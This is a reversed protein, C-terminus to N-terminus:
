SVTLDSSTPNRSISIPANHIFDHAKWQRATIWDPTHCGVRKPIFPFSVSSIVGREYLFPWLIHYPASAAFASAHVQMYDPIANSPGFTHPLSVWIEHQIKLKLWERNKKKICSLALCWAARGTPDSVVSIISFGANQGSSFGISCTQSVSSRDMATLDISSNVRGSTSIETISSHSLMRCLRISLRTAHLFFFHAVDYSKSPVIRRLLIGEDEEWIVM